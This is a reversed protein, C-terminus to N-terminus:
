RAFAEMSFGDLNALVLLDSLDKGRLM